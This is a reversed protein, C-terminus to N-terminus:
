IYLAKNALNALLLYYVVVCFWRVSASTLSALSNARLKGQMGMTNMPKSFSHARIKSIKKPQPFPNTTHIYTYYSPNAAFSLFLITHFFQTFSSHSLVTFFVM